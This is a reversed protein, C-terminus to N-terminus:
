AQFNSSKSETTYRKKKVAAEKKLLSWTTKIRPVKGKKAHM